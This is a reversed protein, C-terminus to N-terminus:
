LCALCRSAERGTCYSGQRGRAERGQRRPPERGQRRDGGRTRAKPFLFPSHSLHPFQSPSFARAVQTFVPSHFNVKARVAALSVDQMRIQEAAKALAALSQRLQQALAEEKRMKGLAVLRRREEMEDEEEFDYEIVEGAEAGDDEIAMKQKGDGRGDYM